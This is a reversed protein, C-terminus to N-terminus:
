KNRTLVFALGIGAIGTVGIILAWPTPRMASALIAQANTLGTQATTLKAQGKVLKQGWRGQVNALEVQGKQQIKAGILQGTMATLDGILQGGAMIGSSINAQKGMQAQHARDATRETSYQDYTMRPYGYHEGPSWSGRAVYRRELRRTRNSGLNRRATSAPRM